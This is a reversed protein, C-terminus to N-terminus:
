LLLCNLSLCQSIPLTSSWSPGPLVIAMGANASFSFLLKLGEEVVAGTVLLTGILIEM